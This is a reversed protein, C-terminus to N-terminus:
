YLGFLLAIYIDVILTDKNIKKLILDYSVFKHRRMINTRVVPLIVKVNRNFVDELTGNLQYNIISILKYKLTEDDINENIYIIDRTNEIDMLLNNLDIIPGNILNKLNNNIDYLDSKKDQVLEYNYNPQKFLRFKNLNTAIVNIINNKHHVFSPNNLITDLTTTNDYITFLSLYISNAINNKLNDDYRKFIMNDVIYPISIIIKKNFDNKSLNFLINTDYSPYKKQILQIIENKYTSLLPHRQILMNVTSIPKDDKKIFIFKNYKLIEILDYYLFDNNKDVRNLDSWDLDILNNFYYIYQLRKKTMTSLDNNNLKNEKSWPLRQYIGRDYIIQSILPYVDYSIDLDKLQVNMNDNNIFLKNYLNQANDNSMITAFLSIADDKSIYVQLHETNKYFIFFSLIFLILIYLM